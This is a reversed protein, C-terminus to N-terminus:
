VVAASAEEITPLPRPKVSVPKFGAVVILLFLLGISNVWALRRDPACHAAHVVVRALESELEYIPEEQRKQVPAPDTKRGVRTLKTQLVNM